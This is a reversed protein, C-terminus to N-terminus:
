EKIKINFNVPNFMVKMIKIIGLYLSFYDSFDPLISAIGPYRGDPTSKV